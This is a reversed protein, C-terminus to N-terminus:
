IRILTKMFKEFGVSSLATHPFNRITGLFLFSLLCFVSHLPLAQNDEPGELHPQQGGGQVQSGPVPWSSGAPSGAWGGSGLCVQGLRRLRCLRTETMEGVRCTM